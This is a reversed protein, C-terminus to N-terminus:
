TIRSAKAPVSRVFKFKIVFVIKPVTTISVNLLHQNTTDGRTGLKLRKVNRFWECAVGKLIKSMLSLLESDTM